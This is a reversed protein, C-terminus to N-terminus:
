YERDYGRGTGYDRELSVVKESKLLQKFNFQSLVSDKDKIFHDQLDFGKYPRTHYFQKNRILHVSDKDIKKAKLFYYISENASTDKLLYVDGAQPKESYEQEDFYSKVAPVFMLVCAAAILLTGASLFLPTKAKDRFEKKIDERGYETGCDCCRITVEKYGYSIIPFFYFHYYPFHYVVYMDFSRCNWCPIHEILETKNYYKKGKIFVHLM